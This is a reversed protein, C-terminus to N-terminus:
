KADGSQLRRSDLRESSKNRCAVAIGPHKGLIPFFVFLCSAAIPSGGMMPHNKYASTSQAFGQDVESRMDPIIILGSTPYATPNVFDGSFFIVGQM